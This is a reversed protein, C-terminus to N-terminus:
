SSKTALKRVGSVLRIRQLPPVMAQTELHSNRRRAPVVGNSCVRAVRVLDILKMKVDLTAAIIPTNEDTSISSGVAPYRSIKMDRLTRPCAAICARYYARQLRHGTPGTEAVDFARESNDISFKSM